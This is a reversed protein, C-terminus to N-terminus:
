KDKISESFAFHPLPIRTHQVKRQPFAIITLLFHWQTNPTQIWSSTQYILERYSWSLLPVHQGKEYVPIQTKINLMEKEMKGVKMRGASVQQIQQCRLSGPDRILLQAPICVVKGAAQGPHHPDRSGLGHHCLITVSDTDLVLGPAYAQGSCLIM